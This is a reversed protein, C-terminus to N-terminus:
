PDGRVNDSALQLFQWPSMLSNFGVSRTPIGATQSVTFFPTMAFTLLPPNTTRVMNQLASYVLCYTVWRGGLACGLKVLNRMAFPSGPEPIKSETTNLLTFSAVPPRSLNQMLPAAGMAFSVCSNMEIAIQGIIL